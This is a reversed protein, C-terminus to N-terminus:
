LRGAAVVPEFSRRHLACPGLAALAAVHQETCYGKHQRFGYGPFREDAAEMWADRWTKAIVSAASIALIKADGSIITEYSCTFGLWDGSPAYPGDVRVHAPCLPLALLARRMALFTAQLINLSDIEAADAWGVGLGLAVARIRLAADMRAEPTMAKSDAVGKLSVRRPLIVAAAVVPGALPGRGAEDVGAILGRWKM